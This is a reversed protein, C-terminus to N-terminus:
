LNEVVGEIKDLALEIDEKTVDKHTVLRIKYEDLALGLVGEEEFLDVFEEAPKDFSKTSFYVINTKYKEPDLDFGIDKLGKALLSANEHDKSLRDVNNELAYLGPAAIVGVQRMGGGLKKRKKRAREIFDENGAIISGIPAGLGKSLCFMVSDAPEVLEKVDKNLSVAANFIRAGDLHLKLGYDEAVEAMNEMYIRDQPIGGARNHTNEVCLLSPSPYHDDELRISKRLDEPDIAGDQDPLLTPTLGGLDAFGGVEYYYIHSNEGLLIGEGDNTHTLVSALNGQTGSPVFLAAEKGLKEAAKEELKHVTPDDHHVEDGVEANKMLDRMEIGPKTVTDSRLDIEKESM